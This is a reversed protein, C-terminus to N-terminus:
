WGCVCWDGPQRCGTCIDDPEMLGLAIAWDPWTLKIHEIEDPTLKQINM